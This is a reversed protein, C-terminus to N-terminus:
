KLTWFDPVMLFYRDMAERFRRRYQKPSVITPEKGGGGLIGSEKVWSELKKDWTFTRIFDVIGVVLEKNEEDVGVLLSYDMVDLRSLFLTDNHLSGRLMEKAHLRLFLPSQHMLEVMNEDLLVENERGTARVHRNRMSGKLDFIKSPSRQYFLNEMVLIHMRMSKGTAANKYGIRYLGFIKALVTPLEHFFAESIYRFYSSAFRLFADMEYRSIQKIIFRDDKTKLFVSGSKGGTSDWKCCSALSAIFSKDCGCSRRLADFHEVFFIKCFFKTTGDTFYHKMHIGSKSRLTREISSSEIESVSSQADSDQMHNEKKVSDLKELYDDCSLTYAVITSPEDECVVISSGPFLHELPSMPYELPLLRGLGNEALMNAIARMFSPSKDALHLTSLDTIDSNQKKITDHMPTDRQEATRFDAVTARNEEFSLRPLANLGHQERDHLFKLGHLHERGLSEDYEDTHLMSFIAQPEDATDDDSHFEDDDSEDDLVGPSTYVETRSPLRHRIGRAAKNIDLMHQNVITAPHIKNQRPQQAQYSRRRSTRAASREPSNAFGYRYGSLALDEKNESQAKQLPEMSSRKQQKKTPDHCLLRSVPAPSSRSPTITNDMFGTISRRKSPSLMSLSLTPLMAAHGTLPENRRGSMGAPYSARKNQIEELPKADALVRQRVKRQKIGSPKSPQTSTDSNSDITSLRLMEMKRMKPHMLEMSLRRSTSSPKSDEEERQPEDKAITQESTANEEPMSEPWLGIKETPSSGLTPLAQLHYDVADAQAEDITVDLLPLDADKLDRSGGGNTATSTDAGDYYADYDVPFMRRLQRRLEREPRFYQRAIEIYQADWQEVLTHLKAHVSGLWLTDTSTSTAYASQLLQLTQKKDETARRSMDQLRRKCSEAKDPQVIDMAFHKNREVISDFFRTIKARFTDFEKDKLKEQISSDIALHMPPTYIEFPEVTEHHFRVAMDGLQFYLSQDRFLDHECDVPTGSVIQQHHHFILELFKGFSYKWSNESLPVASSTIDCQQCHRWMIITTSSAHSDQCREFDVIVKSNHHAYARYHECLTRACFSAPCPSFAHAITDEIYQGLTLDSSDTRYYEFRRVEPSQCAMATGLCGSSYLVVIQQHYSPSLAESSGDIYTEVARTRQHHEELLQEYEPEQLRFGQSPKSTDSSQQHFTAFKERTEKLRMLLHPAPIKVSPSASLTTTQFRRILTKVSTLDMAANATPDESVTDSLTDALSPAVTTSTTASASSAPQFMSISDNRMKTLDRWLFSELRLNHVVFVMFGIIRKVHRLSNENGGRLIVTAGLNPPCQQFFLFTKRRNPIWEHMFTKTNFEGCHGLTLGDTNLEAFSSITSAGTCRAVADLTSLKVNYAVVINAKILHDLAIRSVTASVLVVSPKLAVIRNVLKELFDKEQALVRDISQLQHDGWFERSWELPFLLILIQPNRITRMMSKHAVNKSCVVGKIYQSDSPCGGAIKKIKVYHRIDIEDGDRIDPHVNDSIKLLLGMLVDEWTQIDNDGLEQEVESLMQRLLMRMHEMSTANLEINVPASHLRRHRTLVPPALAQKDADDTGANGRYHSHNFSQNFGPALNRNRLLSQTRPRKSRSQGAGSTISLRRRAGGIPSCLDPTRIEPIRRKSLDEDEDEQQQHSHQQQQDDDPAVRDYVGGLFQLLDQPHKCDDDGDSDYGSFTYETSPLVAGGGNGPTAGGFSHRRFPVNPSSKGAETAHSPSPPEALTANSKSRNTISPFLFKKLGKDTDSALYTSSPLQPSTDSTAGACQYSHLEPTHSDFVASPPRPPTHPAPPLPSAPTTAPLPLEGGGLLVTSSSSTPPNRREDTELNSYCFRCVRVRGVHGIREGQIVDSACKGCFIQGCVRCHHKRRYFKFPANCDFCEKCQADPMWYDTNVVGSRLPEGRLRDIIRGLSNYNSVVSFTTMVSQADSDSDASSRQHDASRRLLFDDVQHPPAEPEAFSIATMHDNETPKKARAEVHVLPPSTDRQGSATALPMANFTPALSSSRGDSDDEEHGHNIDDDNDAHQSISDLSSFLSDDNNSASITSLATPPSTLPATVTSRVKSLLKSLATDQHPDDEHPDYLAFSTLTTPDKSDPLPAIAEM